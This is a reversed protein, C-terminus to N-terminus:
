IRIKITDSSVCGSADFVFGVEPVLTADGPALCFDFAAVQQRAGRITVLKVVCSSQSM